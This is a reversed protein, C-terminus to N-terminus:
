RRLALDYFPAITLIIAFLLPGVAILRLVRGEFRLHMYYMAVLTAKAIALAVLFLVQASKPMPTFATTVEVVTLVALFAFIRMYSPKHATPTHTM